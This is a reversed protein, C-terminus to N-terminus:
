DWLTTHVQFLLNPVNGVYAVPALAAYANVMKAVAPNTTLAIFMQVTGQSHGAYSLTQAGTMNLAYSLMAPIDYKAMEDFTWEWFADSDVPYFVNKMSYTNGRSNGMWVDFGADALIFGLSEKRM